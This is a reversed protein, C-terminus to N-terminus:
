TASETRVLIKTIIFLDVLASIMNLALTLCSNDKKKINKESNYLLNKLYKLKIPGRFYQKTQKPGVEIINELQILCLPLM